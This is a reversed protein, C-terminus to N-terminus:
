IFAISLPIFIILFVPYQIQIFTLFIFALVVVLVPILTFRWCYGWGSGIFVFRTRRGKTKACLWKILLSIGWGEGIVTMSLLFSGIIRGIAVGDREKFDLRDGFPSRTKNLAHRIVYYFAILGPIFLAAVCIDISVMGRVSPFVTPLQQQASAPVGNTFVSVHFLSASVIQPFWMTGGLLVYRWWDEKLTGTYRLPKGKTEVSTLLWRVFCHGGFPALVISMVAAGSLPLRWLVAFPSGTFRLRTNKIRSRTKTPSAPKTPETRDLPDPLKM